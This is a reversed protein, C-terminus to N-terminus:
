DDTDDAVAVGGRTVKEVSRPDGIVVAPSPKVGGKKQIQQEAKKADVGQLPKATKANKAVWQEARERLEAPELHALHEKKTVPSLREDLYYFGGDKMAITPPAPVYPTLEVVAGGAGAVHRARVEGGAFVRDVVVFKGPGIQLKQAM